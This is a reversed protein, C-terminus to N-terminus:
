NLISAVLDEDFSDEDLEIAYLSMNVETVM